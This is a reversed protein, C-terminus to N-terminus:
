QDELAGFASTKPVQTRGGGEEGGGEQLSYGPKDTFIRTVRYM